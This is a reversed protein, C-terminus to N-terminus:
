SQEEKMIQQQNRTGAKSDDTKEQKKKLILSKLSKKLFIEAELLLTNNITHKKAQLLNARALATPRHTTKDTSMVLTKRRRKM